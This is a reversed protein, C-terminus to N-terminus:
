QLKFLTSHLPAPIVWEYSIFYLQTKVRSSGNQLKPEVYHAHRVEFNNCNGKEPHMCKYIRCHPTHTPTVLWITISGCVSQAILGIHPWGLSEIWRSSPLQLIAKMETCSEVRFSISVHHETINKSNGKWRSGKYFQTCESHNEANATKENSFRIKFINCAYTFQCLLWYM